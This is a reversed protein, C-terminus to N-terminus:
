RKSRPNDAPTNTPKLFTKTPVINGTIQKTFYVTPTEDADNCINSHGVIEHVTLIDKTTTAELQAKPRM